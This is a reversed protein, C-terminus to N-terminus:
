FEDINKIKVRFYMDKYFSPSFLVLMPFIELRGLLMCLCLILKNLASFCSHDRTPGVIGFGLGVNNITNSVASFASQFDPCDKAIFLMCLLFLFILLALYGTVGHFLEKEVPKGDVRVTTVRNPDVERRVLAKISKVLILIRSIKLGGATSGACGGIFMLSFLIAKSFVPWTDFDVTAFGTTTMISSVTFFSHRFCEAINGGYRPYIDFCILLTALFAIKFYWRMEENKYVQTFNRLMLAYFLNFNLGFMLMAGAIVYEIYASGYSGINANKISFGGTGATAFAHVISDFLPMGGLLLLLILILTMVIYILYLIRSNYSMKAVLKGFTPGPVEAKMLYLSEDNNRHLVATALVLVGMGGVFHTFGRLFLLSKPISEVETLISAGTTTFGSVVEFFADVFVPIIRSLYFPLCAFLSMFVWTLSVIVFSEKTHLKMKEPAKRSILLSTILLLGMTIVYSKKILFPEGYLFSVGFPIGIFIIELRLIRAIVYRIVGLNM